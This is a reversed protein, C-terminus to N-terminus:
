QFIVRNFGLGACRELVKRVDDETRYDWRTVWVARVEKKPRAADKAGAAPLGAEAGGRAPAPSGEAAEGTPFSPLFFAALLIVGRPAGWRQVLKLSKSVCGVM